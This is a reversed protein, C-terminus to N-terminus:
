RPARWHNVRHVRSRRDDVVAVLHLLADSAAAHGVDEEAVVTQEVALHRDLHEKRLEGDVGVEDLAEAALRLRRRVEVMRVNDVHEVPPFVGRGVEDGHLVDVSPRQGVNQTGVAMEGGLLGGLDGALHGGGEAEGVGGPEDVTVDLRRVDQDARVARHLDGVEADGPREIGRGLRVERLGPRHHTRRRVERGLLGLSGLRIRAAVEVREADHHVLHDGPARREGTVVGHADGVSLDVVVRRREVLEDGVHGPRELRDDGLQQRLVRRHTVRGGVRQALVQAAEAHALPWHGELRRGPHPRPRRRRGGHHRAAAGVGLGADASSDLSRHGWALAAPRRTVGADGDGGAVALLRPGAPVGKGGEEGEDGQADASEEQEVRQGAIVRWRVAQGVIPAM